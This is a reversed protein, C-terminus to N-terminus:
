ASEMSLSPDVFGGHPGQGSAQAKRAKCIEFYFYSGLSTLILFPMSMMFIISWGYGAVLNGANGGDVSSNKCTPCAEAVVSWLLCLALASVYIAAKTRIRSMRYSM